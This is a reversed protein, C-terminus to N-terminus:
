RMLNQSLHGRSIQEKTV